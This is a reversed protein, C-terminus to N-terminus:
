LKEKEARKFFKLGDIKSSEIHKDLIEIAKELNEKLIENILLIHENTSREYLPNIQQSISILNYTQSYTRYILGNLCSKILTMHLERDLTCFEPPKKSQLPKEKLAIIKKLLKRLNNKDINKIGSRLAYCELITRLDYIEELDRYTIQIFYYGKRSKYLVLGDKVLRNLVERIPTQSVGFYESVKKIDIREGLKIQIKTIDEKLKNYIKDVVTQNLLM